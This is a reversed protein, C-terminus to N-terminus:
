GVIQAILRATRPTHESPHLIARNGGALAALLPVLTLQVPYNWPGIIGVLGLPVREVRATSPWLHAPLTVRDPRMWRRLGRAAHRAGGIVMAVETLLTEPRPRGGFDADIAQAIEEAAHRMAAELAKLHARREARSPAPRHGSLDAFAADLPTAPQADKMPPEGKPGRRSARRPPHNRSRCPACPPPRDLRRLIVPNRDLFRVLLTSLPLRTGRWLRRQAAIAGYTAGAINTAIDGMTDPLGSRQANTGFLADIGFEFMEWAAGVLAAFRRRAARPDVARHAARGGGHAAPGAGGSWRWCRRRWRTYRWTGCPCTETSDERRAWGSACLCYVLIGTALGPPMVIGSLWTYLPLLAAMAMAGAAGLAVVPHGAILSAAALIAASGWIAARLTARGAPAPAPATSSTMRTMETRDAAPRASRSRADGFGLPPPVGGQPHATGRAAGSMGHHHPSVTNCGVRNKTM